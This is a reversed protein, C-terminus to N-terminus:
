PERGTQDEVALEDHCKEVDMGHLGLWVSTNGRSMNIRERIQTRHLHLLQSKATLLYRGGNSSTRHGGLGRPM